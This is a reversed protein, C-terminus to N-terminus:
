KDMALSGVSRGLQGQYLSVRTGLTHSVSLDGPHPKTVFLNILSCALMVKIKSFLQNRVRNKSRYDNFVAM